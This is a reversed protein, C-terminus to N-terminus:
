YYVKGGGWRVGLVKPQFLMYGSISFLDEETLRRVVPFIDAAEICPHTEAVSNRGDYSKPRKVYEVLASVSDRPPVAGKLTSIDLGVNPDPKTLGGTHCAVCAQNFLFNGRKLQDFTLVVDRGQDDLRVTRVDEDLELALSPNASLAWAFSAAALCAAQSLGRPMDSDASDEDMTMRGMRHVKGPALTQKAHAQTIPSGHLALLLETLADVDKDLAPKRAAVGALCALAFAIRLM